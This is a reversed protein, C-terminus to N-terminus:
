SGYSGDAQSVAIARQAEGIVAQLRRDARSHLERLPPIARPDGIAGLAGIAARQVLRDEDSLAMVLSDLAGADHLRGLAEAASRRVRPDDRTLLTMLYPMATQRAEEPHQPYPTESRNAM